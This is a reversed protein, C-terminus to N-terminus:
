YTLGCAQLATRLGQRHAVQVLDVDYTSNAEVIVPGDDTIAVDWGLTKLDPLSRQARCVLEILESWYPLPHGTIVRNSDIHRDVDMMDPWVKSRSARAMGLKGTSPAIPAVLNGSAGHAFNDAQNSGTPIRLVCKLVEVRDGQLWTIARVTGLATPSLIETLDRHNSVAPQIIWGRRGELRAMSFAHLERLSGEKDCFRWNGSPQREAVFADIGWTGDVLKFFLRDPADRLLIYWRNLDLGNLADDPDLGDLTALIDITQIAHRRCHRFFALKDGVIVRAEPPNVQRLQKKLREDIVFESWEHEPVRALDYLSHFRPGIGYRLRAKIVGPAIRLPSCGSNRAATSTAFWYDRLLSQFKM